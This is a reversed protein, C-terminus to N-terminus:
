WQEMSSRASIGRSVIGKQTHEIHAVETMETDEKQISFIDPPQAVHAQAVDRCVPDVLEKLESSRVYVVYYPTGGGVSEHNFIYDRNRVESVYEDNYQRWIDQESDYIYVWYHGGGAEGRHIFVAHLKYEYERMDTFQNKLKQQLVEIRGIVKNLEHSVEAIRTDLMDALDPNIMVQDVEFEQMDILWDRAAMLAEPVNISLNAETLANYRAQLANLQKKWRWTERRRRMISSDSKDSDDMYRDLYLTEPITVPTRNKWSRLSEQDFATRQIHFQMIRPLKSISTYQPVLQEDIEVMQEDFSVDLAEYISRAVSRAPFVLLYSWAEVKKQLCHAKQTYVTNAGFFSERIIDIQEGTPEEFGTATIACQLRFLVNGIVETVDQQSGFDWLRDVPDVDKTETTSIVLGAKNRPPVPPPIPSLLPPPVPPPRDPAPPLDKDNGMPISNNTMIVDSDMDARSKVANMMPNEATRESGSNLQVHHGNAQSLGQSDEVLTSDSGNDYQNGIMEVDGERISPLASTWDTPRHPGSMTTEDTQITNLRDNPSSISNKRAAQEAQTSFITLAALEKTPRVSRAPSTKLSIFLKRLEDVFKQAKVIEAKEVQRGGVKKRKLDEDNLKMRYNDFNMIMERVPKVTYYYQLLSNLYCTNGINDLGAPEVTHTQVELESGELNALLFYSNRNVAIVRLAESYSEKSSESAGDTLSRFYNLVGEDSIGVSSIQLRDYAENIRLTVEGIESTMNAAARLLTMNAPKQKAITQLAQAVKSKDGELFMAVAAAEIYEPATDPGVGLFELAEELTMTKEHAIAEIRLSNRHMAIIQLYRKAEDKIAPASAVRSRYLNIIVEDPEQTSYKLGFFRYAVELTKLGYAGASTAMVYKTQLDDSKRGQALDELCDLYYPKNIPDCDCQRDYAWSLLEDTFHEVAGLSSYYPHEETQSDFYRTREPSDIYGLIAKIHKMAPVPSPITPQINKELHKEIIKQNIEFLADELFNRNFDSVRPLVWYSEDGEVKEELFDFDLYKFLLQCDDAFSFRFRKNRVAIKKPESNSNIADTLYAQLHMFATLSSVPKEHAFREPDKNIELKGRKEVISDDEIPELLGGGLRPPQITITVVIPCRPASCRFRYLEFLGSYKPDQLLSLREEARLSDTLVLHHLPYEPNLVNCPEDNEKFEFTVEIKIHFKCTSCMTAVVYHTSPSPETNGLEPAVTQGEKEILKHGCDNPHKRFIQQNQFQPAPHALLNFENPTSKPIYDLLDVILRPTTKGPGIPKELIAM